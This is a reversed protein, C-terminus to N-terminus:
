KNRAAYRAKTASSERERLWATVEDDTLSGEVLPIGSILDVVQYRSPTDVRGLAQLRAGQAGLRETFERDGICLQDLPTARSRPGDPEEVTIKGAIEIEGDRNRRM